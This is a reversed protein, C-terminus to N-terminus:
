SQTLFLHAIRYADGTGAVSRLTGPNPMRRTPAFRITDPIGHRIPTSATRRVGGAIEHM